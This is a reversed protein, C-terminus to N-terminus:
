VNTMWDPKKIQYGDDHKQARRDWDILEELMIKNEQPTIRNERVWAGLRVAWQGTPMDKVFQMAGKSRNHYKDQQTQKAHRRSRRDNAERKINKPLADPKEYRGVPDFDGAVIETVVESVDPHQCDTLMECWVDLTANPQKTSELWQRYSPFATLVRGLETRAETVNM